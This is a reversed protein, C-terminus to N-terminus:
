EEIDEFSHIIVFDNEKVPIKGLASAINNLCLLPEIINFSIKDFSFPYNNNIADYIEALKIKRVNYKSPNDPHIRMALYQNMLIESGAIICIEGNCFSAGTENFAVYGIGKHGGKLKL